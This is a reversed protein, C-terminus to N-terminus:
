DVWLSSARDNFGWNSLDARRGWEEPISLSNGTFYTGDFLVTHAGNTEVSSIINDFSGWCFIFCGTPVTSLQAVSEGHGRWFRAGGGNAHEAFVVYGGPSSARAKRTHVLKPRKASVVLEAKGDVARRLTLHVERGDYRHIAQPAYRVGDIVVPLKPTQHVLKASDSAMAPAAAAGVAGVAAITAVLSRKFM